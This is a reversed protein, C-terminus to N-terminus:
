NEQSCFRKGSFKAPISYLSPSKFHLTDFYYKNTNHLGYKRCFYDVTKTKAHTELAIKKISEKGLYNVYFGVM